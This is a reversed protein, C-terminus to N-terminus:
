DKVSGATLGSIIYKQTFVYIVIIPLMSLTFSAFALNYDFSYQSKFNYQFLPLTWMNPTKNLITLPLLFDNWIWLANLILITAVMPSMLPYIVKTFTKWPSCGDISAAEELEKPISKLYGVCLFISQILGLTIYLVIMGFQNMMKFKTMQKVIPLMIVQFPVFIGSIIYFYLFKYYRKEFNRSIAYSVLPAFFIIVAVSIVTIVVSNKVYTWYHARGIVEKFNGLYFSRPLTFFSKSCEQPTKFSTVITVYMPVLIFLTGVTLITYTLIKSLKNNSDM